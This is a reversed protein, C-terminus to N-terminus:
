LPGTLVRKLDEETLCTILKTINFAINVDKHYDLAEKFLVRIDYKSM